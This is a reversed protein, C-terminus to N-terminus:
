KLTNAMKNIYNKTSDKQAYKKVILLYKQSFDKGAFQAINEVAIGMKEQFPIVDPYTFQCGYSEMKKIASDNEEQMLKRMYDRGFESAEQVIKKEKENLKKWTTPSIIHISPNYMYNLMAIYKQHEFFKAHFIALIPNEQGDIIKQALAMYLESYSIKEPIAGIAKMAEEMPIEPPVRVKIGKMDEPSNVPRKSNSIQRFGWDWYSLIMLEKKAALEALLAGGEGDLVRYVHTNDEYIFPLQVAAAEKTWLLLQGTTNFTMDVIGSKINELIEVTSGLTNNPYIEIKINGNTESEVKRKFELAAKQLPHSDAAYHALRLTVAKASAPILFICLAVVVLAITLARRETKTDM